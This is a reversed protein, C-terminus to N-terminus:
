TLAIARDILELAIEARLSSPHRDLRDRLRAPGSMRNAIRGSPYCLAESYM